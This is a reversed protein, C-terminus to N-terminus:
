RLTKLGDTAAKVVAALAKEQAAVVEEAAKTKIEREGVKEERGAVATERGELEKTVKKERATVTTNRANAKKRIDASEARDADMEKAFATQDELLDDRGDFVAQADAQAQVMLSEAQAMLADAAGQSKVLGVRGNVQKLIEQLEGVKAKYAPESQFMKFVDGATMSPQYIKSM